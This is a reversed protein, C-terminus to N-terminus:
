YALLVAAREIRDPCRRLEGARLTAAAAALALIVDVTAAIATVAVLVVGTPVAGLRQVGRRERGCAHVASAHASSARVARRARSCCVSPAQLAVLRGGSPRQRRRRRGSGIARGHVAASEAASGRARRPRVQGRESASVPAERTEESSDVARHLRRIGQKVRREKRRGLRVVRDVDDRLLRWVFVAVGQDARM